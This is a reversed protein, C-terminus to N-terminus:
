RAKRKAGPRNRRGRPESIQIRHHGPQLREGSGGLTQIEVVMQIAEFVHGQHLVRAPVSTRGTRTTERETERVLSKDRNKVLPM